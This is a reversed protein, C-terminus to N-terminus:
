PFVMVTYAFIQIVPPERGRKKRGIPSRPEAWLGETIWINAYGPYLSAYMPPNERERKM